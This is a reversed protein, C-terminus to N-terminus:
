RNDAGTTLELIKAQGRTDPRGALFDGLSPTGSGLNRELTRAQGLMSVLVPSTAPIFHGSGADESFVTTDIVEIPFETLRDLTGIRGLRTEPNSGRLRASLNLIRDNRSAFVVFPQPVEQLSQMQVRFVDVDLDPSILIVGGLMRGAWGPDQLEIQRLTEMVLAGGLSHAVVIVREAGTNTAMRLTQELGNRAFLMSDGDYAYGLPSGRSSWSYIISTGTLGLDVSLQAARFATELHTANYGHTFVILERTGKPEQSLVKRIRAAFDSSGSVGQQQALTFQTRPNPNAYAFDVEALKREPPVSVILDLLTLTESRDFGFTGDPNERRTTAAFIRVPEGISLASPTVPSFSRDTCAGLVLFVLILFRM